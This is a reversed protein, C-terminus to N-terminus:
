FLEILKLINPHDLNKLVNMESFLKEEEEKILSSKKLTKMARVMGTQKHIVKSV